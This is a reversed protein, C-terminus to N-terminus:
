SIKPQEVNRNSINPDSVPGTLWSERQMGM